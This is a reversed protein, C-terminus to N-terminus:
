LIRSSCCISPVIGFNLDEKYGYKVSAAVTFGCKDVWTYITQNIGAIYDIQQVLEGGCVGAPVKCYPKNNLTVYDRGIRPDFLSFNRVDRGAGFWRGPSCPETWIPTFSENAGICNVMFTLIFIFILLRSKMFNLM